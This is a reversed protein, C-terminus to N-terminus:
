FVGAGFCFFGHPAPGDAWFRCWICGFIEIDFELMAIDDAQIALSERWRSHQSFQIAETALVTRRRLEDGWRCMQEATTPQV